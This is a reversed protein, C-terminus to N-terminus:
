SWRAKLRRLEKEAEGPQAPKWPDDTEKENLRIDGSKGQGSSGKTAGKSCPGAALGDAAALPECGDGSVGDFGGPPGGGRLTREPEKAAHHHLEARSAVAPPAQTRDLPQAGIYAWSEPAVGTAEQAQGQAVAVAQMQEWATKSVTALGQQQTARNAAVGLIMALQKEMMTKMEQESKAELARSEEIQYVQRDATGMDGLDRVVAAKREGTAERKAAARMAAQHAQLGAVVGEAEESVRQCPVVGGGSGSSAVALMGPRMPMPMQSTGPPPKPVAILAQWEPDGGGQAWGQGCLVCAADEKKCLCTREAKVGGKTPKTERYAVRM